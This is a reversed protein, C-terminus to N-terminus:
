SPNTSGKQSRGKDVQCGGKKAEEPSCDHRVTKKGHSTGAITKSGGNTGAVAKNGQGTKAVTKQGPNTAGVTKNAPNTRAATKNMPNAAVTKPNAAVTKGSSNTGTRRAGSDSNHKKHLWNPPSWWHKRHSDNNKNKANDHKTDRDQNQGQDKFVSTGDQAKAVSTAGLALVLGLLLLLRVRHM